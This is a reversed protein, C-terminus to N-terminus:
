WLVNVEVEVGVDFVTLRYTLWFTTMKIIVRTKLNLRIRLGRSQKSTDMLDMHGRFWGCIYKKRRRFISNTLMDTGLPWKTGPSKPILSPAGAGYSSCFLYMQPYNLTLIHM